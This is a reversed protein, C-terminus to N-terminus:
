SHCEVGDIKTPNMLHSMRDDRNFRNVRVLLLLDLYVAERINKSSDEKM